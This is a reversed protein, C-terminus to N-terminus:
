QLIDEFAAQAELMACSAIWLYKFYDEHLGQLEDLTDINSIVNIDNVWQEFSIHVGHHQCFITFLEQYLVLWQFCAQFADPSHVSSYDVLDSFSEIKLDIIEPDFQMFLDIIQGAQDVTDYISLLAQKTSAVDVIEPQKALAIGMDYILNYYADQIGQDNSFNSAGISIMGFSFLCGLTLWVKKIM